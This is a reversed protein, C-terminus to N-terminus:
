FNLIPRPFASAYRPSGVEVFISASPNDVVFAALAGTYTAVSIKATTGSANGSVDYFLYTNGGSELMTPDAIQDVQQGGVTAGDKCHDLVIGGAIDPLWHELDASVAHVIVSPLLAGTTNSHYWGHWKNGVLVPCLHSYSKGPFYELSPLPVNASFTWGGDNDIATNTAHCIVWKTGAANRGEVLMHYTSGVKVIHPNAWSIIAANANNAIAVTDGSWTELDTSTSRRLNATAAITDAYFLHYTSGEKWIGAHGAHSSVGRLVPNSADKTYTGDLTSATALGIGAYAGSKYGCYLISKTGSEDVVVPEQAMDKDWATGGAGVLLPNGSSRTLRDAQSSVGSFWKRRQSNAVIENRTQWRPLVRVEDIQCHAHQQVTGGDNYAGLTLPEYAGSDPVVTQTADKGELAGNIWIEKGHTTSQQILIRYPTNDLFNFLIGVGTITSLDAYMGSSSNTRFVLKKTTGSYFLDIGYWYPDPLYKTLLRKDSTTPATLWVFVFEISYESPMTDLVSSITAYQSSGNLVLANGTSFNQTPLPGWGGIDSGVRSPSGVLTCTTNGTEDVPSGSSEDLHYLCLATAGDDDLKQFVNDFSSVSSAGSNGYYLRFTTSGAAGLSDAKFWLEGIENTADWVRKWHPLETAGDGTTIRIDDGDAQWLSFDVDVSTLQLVQQFNTVAAGTNAVGILKYGTWGTPDFSM